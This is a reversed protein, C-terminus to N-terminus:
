HVSTRTTIKPHLKEQLTYDRRFPTCGPCYNVSMCISTVWIQLPDNCGSIYLQTRINYLVTYVVVFWAIRSWSVYCVQLLILVVTYNRKINIPETFMDHVNFNGPSLHVDLMSCITVWRTHITRRFMNIGQIPTLIYYWCLTSGTHSVSVKGLM